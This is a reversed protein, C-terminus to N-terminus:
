NQTVSREPHCAGCPSYGKEILEDYSGSYEQRNKDSIKQVSECGPLHIKMSNTNLVFDCDEAPSYGSRTEPERTNQPAEEALSPDSLRNDGTAYDISVGPYANYCFVCFCVGAGSDEVSYAEMLVGRALLDDSQFEPTVRYLVHNGTRRVYSAVENEFPLMGETNFWRTGTILNRENANEGTLQYGQLHCRNYLYKGDVFDYKDYHWGTPKVAGISGRKETPMIEQCVCSFTIGCRGLSDLESYYEFPESTLDDKTFYPIDGHIVTSPEGSFEPVLSLDFSGSEEPLEEPKQSSESSHFTFPSVSVQTEPLIQCSCLSLMLAAALAAFARM